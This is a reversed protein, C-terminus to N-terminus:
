LKAVSALNRTQRWESQLLRSAPSDPQESVLPCSVCRRRWCARERLNAVSALNRTQRRESQLLRSAPSGPREAVYGAVSVGGERALASRCTQSRRWIGPKAGNVRSGAQERVRNSPSMAPLQCVAKALLRMGVPKRGAGIGRKAGNVRCSGAQQRVRDSPSMGPLQCVAKALLRMGVPKRGAGFEENSAM